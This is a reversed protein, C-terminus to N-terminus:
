QAVRHARGHRRRLGRGGYDCQGSYLATTTIIIQNSFVGDTSAPDNITVQYDEVEGDAATGSVGLGGLTSVRFRAYTTGAIAFSSVDFTLNNDGVVVNQSSFIQEGPGGWSGDGNFDIWADLNGAAGQVNVTLTAGLAGVQMTGFTVGDEDAGDADAAASHTGDGESDRTLGLTLGIAAHWAGDEVLTTPYPAPADGFDTFLDDDDSITAIVQQMGSEEANTVSTIDVIIKENVEGLADQVATLTISM